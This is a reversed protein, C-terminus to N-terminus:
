RDGETTTWDVRVPNIGIADCIALQTDPNARRGALTSRVTEASVGAKAAIDEHTLGLAAALAKLEDRTM